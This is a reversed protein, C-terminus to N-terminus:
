LGISSICKKKPLTRGRLDYKIYASTKPSCNTGMYMNRLLRFCEPIQKKKLDFTEM